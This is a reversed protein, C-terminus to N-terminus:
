FVKLKTFIPPYTTACNTWVVARCAPLDRSPNGFTDSNKMSMIRGCQPGSTSDAELLFSHWSYKRAPLPPRHTPSVKGGEYAPQRSIHSDWSGQVGL